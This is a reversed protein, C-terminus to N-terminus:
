LSELANAADRHELAVIAAQEATDFQGLNHRLGGAFFAARYKGTDHRLTVGYPLKGEGARGRGKRSMDSMNALHAGIKLHRVNVCAPVDCSHMVELGDVLDRGSLVWAVRHALATHYHYMMVGYGAPNVCGGWLFCGTNPDPYVHREFRELLTMRKTAYSRKKGAM